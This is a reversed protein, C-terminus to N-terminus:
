EEVLSVEFGKLDVWANDAITNTSESGNARKDLSVRLRLYLNGVRIDEMGTLPFTYKRYGKDTEKDYTKREESTNEKPVNYHVPGSEGFVNMTVAGEALHWTKEDSSYELAYYGAASGASGMSAEVSIETTATFNKVPIVFLYYDDKLMGRIQIGPNFTYNGLSAVNPSYATLYAEENGYTPLVRHADYPLIEDTPNVADSSWSYDYESGRPNEIEAAYFNWGVPLGEVTDGTDGIVEITCSGIRVGDIVIGITLDGATEPTGTVPIVIEGDGKEFSSFTMDPMSIGESSGSMTFSIEVSEKGSACSYPIHIEADSETGQLLYGEISVAGYAFECEGQMVKVPLSTGRAMLYVTGQRAAGSNYEVNLTFTGYDRGNGSGREPSVTIWPAESCDAIWEGDCLITQEISQETCDISLTDNERSFVFEDERCSALLITLASYIATYKISTRMDIHTQHIIKGM